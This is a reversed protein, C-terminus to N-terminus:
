PCASFSLSLPLNAVHLCFLFSFALACEPVNPQGFVCAVAECGFSGENQQCVANNINEQFCLM